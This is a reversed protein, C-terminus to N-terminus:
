TTIYTSYHFRRLRQEMKIANSLLAYAGVQVKYYGDQYIIFAPFGDMLLSNLMRDANEKNRYAGTQVRYLTEPTYNDNCQCQNYPYSNTYTNNDANSINFSAAPSSQPMNNYGSIAASSNAPSTMSGTNSSYGSNNTYTSKSSYNFDDPFSSVPTSNAAEMSTNVPSIDAVNEANEMSMSTTASDSISAAGTMSSTTMSGMMSGTTTSGAMAGTTSRPTMSGSTSGNRQNNNSSQGSGRESAPISELIGDAIANAIKDFEQDFLYNDKDNNIFGAEVLVAPMKTRKLLVLNKRVDVGLNKFGVDELQNNINRAVEAKLGTDNFVLSEVGSYQNPTESSNRHISIFLDAGSNNADTAKKFPTEYEDTTRTYFVDVGNKKLIDGVALTLDLTDDKEQRGNYVAGPDSGGHGADLAVKYNAM